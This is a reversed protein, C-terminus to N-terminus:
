QRHIQRSAQDDGDSVAFGHSIGTGNTHSNTQALAPVAGAWLVVLALWKKVLSGIARGAAAGRTTSIPGVREIEEMQRALRYRKVAATTQPGPLGDLPGSYFGFATLSAQTELVEDSTLPRTDRIPTSVPKPPTM